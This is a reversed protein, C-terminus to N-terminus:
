IEIVRCPDFQENERALEQPSTAKKIGRCYGMPNALVRTSGIMYDSSCHIHGHIFVDAMSLEDALDSVFGASTLETSFRPDMSNPHPGHHTVVVTKGSFPSSLARRLWSRHEWHMHQAEVPSFGEGTKGVIVKHDIIKEACETMADTRRSAGFVEFDTWLTCGIFRVNQIVTEGPSLVKINPYAIKRLDFEGLVDDLRSQYFEHNGPVFIVPYPWCAFLDLVRTGESIDGALVLVDADCPEVALYGPFRKELYELHLDSAFQIKM